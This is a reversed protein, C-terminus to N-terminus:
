FKRKLQAIPSVASEFIATQHSSHDVKSDDHLKQAMSMSIHGQKIIKVTHSSFSFGTYDQEQRTSNYPWIRGQCIVLQGIALSDYSEDLVKEDEDKEVCKQGKNLNIKVELYQKDINAPFKPETKKTSWGPFQQCFKVLIQSHKNTHPTASGPLNPDKESLRVVLKDGNSTPQMNIIIGILSLETRKDNDIRVTKGNIWDTGQLYWKAFQPLNLAADEQLQAFDKYYQVLNRTQETSTTTGRILELDSDDSSSTDVISVVKQAKKKSKKTVFTQVQQKEDVSFLDPTNHRRRRKKAMEFTFQSTDVTNHLAIQPLQFIIYLSRQTFRFIKDIYGLGFECILINDPAVYQEMTRNHLQTLFLDYQKLEQSITLEIKSKAFKRLIVLQELFKTRSSAIYFLRKLFFTFVDIVVPRTVTLSQCSHSAISYSLRLPVQSRYFTSNRYSLAKKIPTIAVENNGYVGDAFSFNSAILKNMKVLVAEPLLKKVRDQDNRYMIGIVVGACNRALGVEPCINSTLYVYDGTTLTVKNELGRWREGDFRCLEKNIASTLDSSSDHKANFTCLEFNSGALHSRSRQTQSQLQQIKLNFYQVYVNKGFIFLPKDDLQLRPGALDVARSYFKAYTDDSVKGQRIESLMDQCCNDGSQRMNDQLIIAHSMQRWAAVGLHGSQSLRTNECAPNPASAAVPALQHQDGFWVTPLGGFLSSSGKAINAFKLQLRETTTTSVNYSGHSRSFHEDTGSISLMFQSTCTSGDVNSAAVGNYSSVTVSHAGLKYQMYLRFALLLTSKGSGPMGAIVLQLRECETMNQELLESNKVEDFNSKVLEDRTPICSEPSEMGASKYQKGWGVHVNPCIDFQILKKDTDAYRWPIFAVM